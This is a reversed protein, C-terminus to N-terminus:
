GGNLRESMVNFFADVDDTALPKDPPPPTVQASVLTELRQASRAPTPSGLVEEIRVVGQRTPEIFSVVTHGSRSAEMIVAQAKVVAQAVWAADDAVGIPPNVQALTRLAAVEGDLPLDDDAAASRAMINMARGSRIVQLVVASRRAPRPEGEELAAEMAAPTPPVRLSPDLETDIAQDLRKELLLEAPQREFPTMTLFDLPDAAPANPVPAAVQRAAGLAQGAGDAPAALAGGPPQDVARSLLRSGASRGSPDAAGGTQAVSPEPQSSPADSASAANSDLPADVQSAAAAAKEALLAAKAAQYLLIGKHAPRMSAPMASAASALAQLMSDPPPRSGSRSREYKLFSLLRRGREVPDQYTEIPLSHADVEEDTPGMVQVFRLVRFESLAHKELDKGMYFSNLRLVRGSAALIGQGAGKEQMEKLTVRDVEAVEIDRDRVVGWNALKFTRRMAVRVTGVTVKVFEWTKKPDDLRMFFKSVTNGMMAGAENARSGETLKELDQAAAIMCFGLSRAQAFMVAIGEAFYYALEDLAVQYPYPAATAKSTLLEMRTGEIEAGLNKGMMVRLCAIALKGLSESEQASKELSPILLALIRNNLTVDIMDIEPLPARFIHGYTKDLLNLAPMLQNSRYAHQEFAMTEQENARPNPQAGARPAQQAQPAEVYGAKALLREVRYAPLDVHLYARIGAFGHSWEGMALSEEYGRLYLKEVSPLSLNEIITGVSLEMGEHDRLYCLARVVARWLNLAKDQWGKGEGEAKPLLNAGMQIITDADASRFPNISNSRRRRSKLLQEPTSGGLLFNLFLVDDDRGMSRAMTLVDTPLKNDAKGDAVFFGSSWCLANFFIGKLTESKGSGTSGLILVHKRATDDSWWVQAWREYESDSDIVGLHFIGKGGTDVPDEFPARLQNVRHILLHVLGSLFVLPALPALAVMAFLHVGVLLLLNARFSLWEAYISSLPRVDVIRSAASVEHRAEVYRRPM